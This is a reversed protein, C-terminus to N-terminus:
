LSGQMETFDIEMEPSLNFESYLLEISKNLFQASAVIFDWLKSFKVSSLKKEIERVFISSDSFNNIIELFKDRDGVDLTQYFGTLFRKKESFSLKPLEKDNIGIKKKVILKNKELDICFFFKPNKNPSSVAHSIFFNYRDEKNM